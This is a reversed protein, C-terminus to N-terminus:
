GFFPNLRVGIDFTDISEVKKLRSVVTYTVPTMLIEIGCKLIYNTVVLAAFLEWPFAGALCAIAVFIVSDLLEGILTSGITRVWLYKGQMLIKLRSLSASNAFEGVTYAVLSAIPLAGSSVGGLIATYASSGASAEWLGEGPLLRLVLLSLSCLALCGFGTWIARRSTRFGYVETLIDGFVYSIPFLLTGGDFVFPIGLVTFGLDVIKASSAIASIILVTVFITMLIDFCVYQQQEKM